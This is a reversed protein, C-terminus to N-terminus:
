SSGPTKVRITLTPDEYSVSPEEDAAEPLEFDFVVDQSAWRFRGPRVWMTGRVVFHGEGTHEIKLSRPDLKPANATVIIMGDGERIDVPVIGGKFWHAKM